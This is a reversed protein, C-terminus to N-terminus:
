IKFVSDPIGANVKINSYETAGALKNDRNYVDIRTPVWIGEVHKHKSYIYRCKLKGDSELKELKLLKATKPEVYCVIDKDKANSRVFTLKYLTDGSVHVVDADTVIYDRWLQDSVIGIDLDGQLQHPENSCDQKKGIHLSPVRYLKYKGNMIISIGVLGVKGDVRMKDPAKYRVTTNKADYSKPFDSGIKQLEKKNGYVVKGNLSIDKFSKTANRIDGRIDAAISVGLGVSLIVVLCLARRVLRSM